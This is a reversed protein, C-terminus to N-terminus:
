PTPIQVNRRRRAAEAFYRAAEETKGQLQLAVGMDHYANPVDPHTRIVEQFERIGAEINGATALAGGLNLRARWHAPDGELAQRFHVIAEDTRGLQRLALGLGNHAMVDRPSLRLARRYYTVAQDLRNAALLTNAYNCLVVPDNPDAEAARRYCDLAREANGARTHADGLNNQATGNRPYAEAVTGWFTLPDAWLRQQDSALAGLVVPVIVSAALAARRWRVHRATLDAVLWVIIIFPGVLPVYTYRDALLQRGVQVLGAVPLLMVLYMLWGFLVYPRRRRAWVALVTIGALLAAFVLVRWLEVAPGGHAPLPVLPVLTGPWPCVMKVLYMGYAYVAHAIREGLSLAVLSHSVVATRQALLTIAGSAASMGLLPLKEWVASWRLRGLPWYDMALLVVPLTVAMPKSVLAAAFAAVVLLYRRVTPRAAYWGYAMIALLMFFTCLVDKREAIWTVSEVHLPHLAFLAAVVASPWLRGTLWRLVVLLLVANAAHLLINTLHHGWAGDPGYLDVDLAHSLWTLPHWNGAHVSRVAWVVTDWSLGGRVHPNETVYENDDWTMFSYRASPAYTVLVAAVLAASAWVVPVRRAPGATGKRPAGPERAARGSSKGRRDHM